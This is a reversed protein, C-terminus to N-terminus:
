GGADVIARIRGSDTNDAKDGRYVPVNIDIQLEQMQAFERGTEDLVRITDFPQISYDEEIRVPSGAVDVHNWKKTVGDTHASEIAHILWHLVSATSAKGATVPVLSSLSFALGVYIRCVRMDVATLRHETDTVGSYLYLRPLYRMDVFDGVPRTDMVEIREGFIGSIRSDNKLFECLQHMLIDEPSLDGDAFNGEFWESGSWTAPTFPKDWLAM